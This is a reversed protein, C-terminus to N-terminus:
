RWGTQRAFADMAQQRHLWEAPPHQGDRRARAETEAVTKTLPALGVQARRRDVEAENEIPLPVLHGDDDWDLQTGYIQPRGEMARIRDELTAPHRRPIEGRNAASKMLTLCRRQFSPRSIAHLAILFAAEVADDGIEAASPWGEDDVALELDRANAEHLARMDPHYGAFLEGSLALQQRLRTEAEAMHLLHDRM